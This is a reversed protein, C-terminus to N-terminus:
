APESRPFRVVIGWEWFRFTPSLLCQSAARYISNGLFCQVDAFQTPLLVSCINCTDSNEQFCKHSCLNHFLPLVIQAVISGKNWWGEACGPTLQAKASQLAKDWFVSCSIDLRWTAKFLHTSSQQDSQEKIVIIGVWHWRVTITFITPPTVTTM